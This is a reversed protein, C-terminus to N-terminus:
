RVQYRVRLTQEARATLGANTTIDCIVEYNQGAAGGAITARVVSGDIETEGISLGDPSATISATAITDDTLSDDEITNRALWANWQFAYPLSDDPCKRLSM